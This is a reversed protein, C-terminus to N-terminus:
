ADDPPGPPTNDRFLLSNNCHLIKEVEFFGGNAEVIWERKPKNHLNLYKLPKFASQM